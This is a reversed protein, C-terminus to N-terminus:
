RCERPIGVDTTDRVGSVCHVTRDIDYSIAQVSGDCFALYCSGAHASGFFDDSVLGVRDQRPVERTARAIDLAHGCYATENNGPTEGVDYDPPHMYKEGILYTNSTGDSIDSLRIESRFFIVGRRDDNSDWDFDPRDAVSLSSPALSANMKRHIHGDNVAYDNKAVNLNTNANRYPVITSALIPPRRSPCYMFPVITAIVRTAIARKQSPSAGKGEQYLASQEMFPLLNYFVGGPQNRGTGRDPDGVWEPTWGNTPLRRHQDHHLNIALALQKLHNQCQVRRAAERASQVAPLLLSILIGIIAIVVLLEVLTFGSRVNKSM